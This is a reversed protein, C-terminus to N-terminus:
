AMEVIDVLVVDMVNDKAAKDAFPLFTGPAAVAAFGIEPEFVAM